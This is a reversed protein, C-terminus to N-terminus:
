FSLDNESSSTTDVRVSEDGSYTFHADGWYGKDVVENVAEGLSWTTIKAGGQLAALFNQSHLQTM